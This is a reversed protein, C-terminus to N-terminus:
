PQKKPSPAGARMALRLAQQYQDEAQLGGLAALQPESLVTPSKALIANWDYQGAARERGPYSGVVVRTLEDVQTTTLPTATAYLTGALQAVLKRAPLAQITERLQQVGNPGLLAILLAEDERKKQQDWRSVSLIAMRGDPGQVMRTVGAGQMMLNEFQEIQIPSFGLAKYLAGFQTASQARYLDFVARRVEPHRAMFEQGAAISEPTPGGTTASTQNRAPEARKATRAQEAEKASRASELAKELDAVVQETAQARRQVVRLKSESIECAQKADELTKEVARRITVEHVAFIVAILALLTATGPIFKANM